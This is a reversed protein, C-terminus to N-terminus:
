LHNKLLLIENRFRFLQRAIEKRNDINNDKLINNIIKNIYFEIYYPAKSFDIKNGQLLLLTQYIAKVYSENFLSIDTNSLILKIENNRNHSDVEEISSIINGFGIINNYTSLKKIFENSRCALLIVDHNQFCINATTANMMLYDESENRENSPRYLGDSFGHGAFIILSKEDYNKVDREFFTNDEENFSTYNEGLNELSQLFTTTPDVAHYVRIVSYKNM